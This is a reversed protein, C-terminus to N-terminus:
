KSVPVKPKKKCIQCMHVYKDDELLENINKSQYKQECDLHSWKECEECMIWVKGDQGDTSEFYITECYCCYDQSEYREACDLCLHNIGPVTKFRFEKLKNKQRPNKQLISQLLICVLKIAIITIVKKNFSRKQRIRIKKRNIKKSDTKQNRYYIFKFIFIGNKYLKFCLIYIAGGGGKM